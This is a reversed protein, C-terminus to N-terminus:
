LGSGNAFRELTIAGDLFYKFLFYIIAIKLNLLITHIIPTALVHM